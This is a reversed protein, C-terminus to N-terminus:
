KSQLDFITSFPVGLIEVEDLPFEIIELSLDTSCPILIISNGTKWIRRVIKKAGVKVVYIQGNYIDTISNNWLLESGKFIRAVDMSNDKIVLKDTYPLKDKEDNLNSSNLNTAFKAYEKQMSAIYDEEKSLLLESFVVDNTKIFRELGQVEKVPDLSFAYMIKFFIELKPIYKGKFLDNMYSHSVGVMDAFQRNSAINNESKIRLLLIQFEERAQDYDKVEAYQM